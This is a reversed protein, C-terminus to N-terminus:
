LKPRKCSTVGAANATVNSMGDARDTTKSRPPALHPSSFNGEMSGQGNQVRSDEPTTAVLRSIGNALRDNKWISLPHPFKITTGVKLRVPVAQSLSDAPYRGGHYLYNQSKAAGCAVEADLVGSGGHVTWGPLVIELCTCRQLSLLPLDQLHTINGCQSQTYRSVDQGCDICGSQIDPSGDLPASLSSTGTSSGLVVSTEIM